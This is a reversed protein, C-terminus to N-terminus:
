ALNEKSMEREDLGLFELFIQVVYPDFQKGAKARLEFLAKNRTMAKRYSRDSIMADYADVVAIIRSGIPIQEGKLGDPYGTGDFSEHHHRVITGIPALRSISSITKQGIVPHKKILDFEYDDLEGPKNLIMGAVGIKGIDHLSAAMDINIIEEDPLDLARAICVAWRRVRQSHGGTYNDKLEILGVLTDITEILDEKQEKILNCSETIDQVIEIVREVQGNKIIPVALQELIMEKGLYNNEEKINTETKKSIFARAVPCGKCIIGKGFLDFCKRGLVSEIPLGAINCTAQNAFVINLERDLINYSVPTNELILKWQYENTQLEKQAQALEWEKERFKLQEDKVRYFLYGSLIPIPDLLIYWSHNLHIMWFSDWTLALGQHFVQTITVFFPVMLGIIAGYIGFFLGALAREM